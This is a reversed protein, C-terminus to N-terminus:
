QKLLTIIFIVHCQQVTVTNDKPKIANQHMKVPKFKGKEAQWICWFVYIQM